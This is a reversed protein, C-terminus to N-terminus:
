RFGKQLDNPIWGGDTADPAERLRLMTPGAPLLAARGDASVTADPLGVHGTYFAVSRELDRVVLDVAIIPHPQM